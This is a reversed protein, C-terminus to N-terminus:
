KGRIVDIEEYFTHGFVDAAETVFVEFLLHKFTGLSGKEKDSISSVYRGGEAVDQVGVPKGEPRTDVFAINTWGHRTPDVGIGPALEFDKDSGDSGYVRYVQAARTDKHWSDARIEAVNTAEKLDIRFRGELTGAQFFLAEAPADENAPTRGDTLV